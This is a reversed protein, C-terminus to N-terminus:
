DRAGQLQSGVGLDRSGHRLAGNRGSATALPSASCGGSIGGEQVSRHRPSAIEQIHKPKARTAANRCHTRWRVCIRIRANSAGRDHLFLLYQAKGGAKCAGEEVVADAQIVGMPYPWDPAGNYYTNISFTKTHMPPLSGTFSLLPFVMGTDHGGYYRGVCGTSNGLGAPHRSTRSDLLLAASPGLGACVAVINAHVTEQKEDREMLVGTTKTGRENTLIRLCRAQTVLDVRGSRLAPRLAAVDADMKADLRCYYADCTPCLVCKGGPGYDLARPMPSVTTGSHRLRDVM